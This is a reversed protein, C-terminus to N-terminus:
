RLVKKRSRSLHIAFVKQFELAVCSVAAKTVGGFTRGLKEYSAGGFLDPNITASLAVFRLMAASPKRVLEADRWVWDMIERFAMVVDSMGDAAETLEADLPNGREEPYDFNTVSQLEGGVHAAGPGVSAIKEGLRWRVHDHEARGEIMVARNRHDFAAKCRPCVGSVLRKCRRSCAPCLKKNRKKM